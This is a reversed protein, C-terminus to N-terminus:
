KQKELPQSDLVSWIGVALLQAEKGNIKPRRLDKKYKHLLKEFNIKVPKCTHKKM